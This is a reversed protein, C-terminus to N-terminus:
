HIASEPRANQAVSFELGEFGLVGVGSCRFTVQIRVELSWVQVGFVLGQFGSSWFIGFGVEKSRFDLGLGITSCPSQPWLFHFAHKRLM